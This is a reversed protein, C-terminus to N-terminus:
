SSPSLNFSAAGNSLIKIQTYTIGEFSFTFPLAVVISTDDQALRSLVTGGSIPTYVGTASTFNYASAQSYLRISTCLLYAVVLLISLGRM